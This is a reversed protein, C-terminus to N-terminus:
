PTGKKIANTQERRIMAVVQFPMRSDPGVLFRTLDRIIGEAESRTVIAEGTLGVGCLKACREAGQGRISVYPGPM